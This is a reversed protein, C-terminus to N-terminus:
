QSAVAPEVDRPRGEADWPMVDPYSIIFSKFFANKIQFSWIPSLVGQKDGIKRM